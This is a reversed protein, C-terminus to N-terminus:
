CGVAGGVVRAGGNECLQVTWQVAMLDFEQVSESIVSIVSCWRREECLQVTSLEQVTFQVINFEQM